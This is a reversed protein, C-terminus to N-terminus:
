QRTNVALSAYGSTALRPGLASEPARQYSGGSGHVMVILTTEAPEKDNPQWLAAEVRFGDIAKISLFRLSSDDRADFDSSLGSPRPVLNYEISAAIQAIHEMEGGECQGSIHPVGHPM